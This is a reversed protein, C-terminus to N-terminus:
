KLNSLREYQKESILGRRRLYYPNQNYGDCSHFWIAEQKQMGGSMSDTYYKKSTLIRGDSMKTKKTQLIKTEM